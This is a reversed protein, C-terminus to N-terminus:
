GNNAGNYGLEIHPVWFHTEKSMNEKPQPTLEIYGAKKILEKPVLNDSIISEGFLRIHPRDTPLALMMNLPRYWDYGKAINPSEVTTNTYRAIKSGSGEM